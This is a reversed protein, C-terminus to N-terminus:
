IPPNGGQWCGYRFICHKCGEQAIREWAGSRSRLRKHFTAVLESAEQLLTETLDLPRSRRDGTTWVVGRRIPINLTEMACLALLAIQLEHTHANRTVGRKYEWVIGEGNEMQLQDIIGTMGFKESTVRLSRMITKGRHNREGGEDVVEHEVKGERFSGTEPIAAEADTMLNFASRPCYAYEAVVHVSVLRHDSIHM